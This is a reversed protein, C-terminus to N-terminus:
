LYVTIYVQFSLNYSLLLKTVTRGDAARVSVDGDPLDDGGADALRNDM